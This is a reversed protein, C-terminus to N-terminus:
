IEQQILILRKKRRKEKFFVRFEVLRQYSVTSVYIFSFSVSPRIRVTYLSNTWHFLYILTQIRKPESYWHPWFLFPTVNWCWCLCSLVLSVLLIIIFYFTKIYTIHCVVIIPVLSNHEMSYGIHIGNLGSLVLLNRM